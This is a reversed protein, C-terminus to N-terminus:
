RATESLGAQESEKELQFIANKGVEYEQWKDQDNLTSPKPNLTEPNYPLKPHNLGLSGHFNPAPNFRLVKSGEAVQSSAAFSYGPPAVLM